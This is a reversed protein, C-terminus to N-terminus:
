TACMCDCRPCMLPKKGGGGKLFWQGETFRTCGGLDGWQGGTGRHPDTDAMARRGATCSSTPEPLTERREKNVFAQHSQAFLVSFAHHSAATLHTVVQQRAQVDGAICAAKGPPGLPLLLQAPSNTSALKCTM